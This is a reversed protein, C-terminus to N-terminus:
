LVYLLIMLGHFISGAVVLLHFISHMYHVKRGVGYLVTGITYCLGGLFLLVIALPDFTSILYPLSLVICWGLGIYCTMSFAVYKKIDIANSSKKIKNENIPNIPNNSIKEEKKDEKQLNNNM